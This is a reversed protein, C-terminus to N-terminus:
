IQNKVMVPFYRNYADPDNEGTEPDRKSIALRLKQSVVDFTLHAICYRDRPKRGTAPRNSTSRYESYIGFCSFVTSINTLTCKNIKTVSDKHTSAIKYSIQTKCRIKELISSCLTDLNKTIAFFEMSTTVAGDIVATKPDIKLKCLYMLQELDTKLGNSFLLSNNIAKKKAIVNFFEEEYLTQDSEHTFAKRFNLWMFHADLDNRPVKKNLELLYKESLKSKFEEPITWLQNSTLKLTRKLEHERSDSKLMRTSTEIVEKKVGIEERVIGGNRRLLMFLQRSYEESNELILKKHEYDVLMDIFLDDEHRLVMMQNSVLEKAIKQDLERITLRCYEKDMKQYFGTKPYVSQRGHMTTINEMKQKKLQPLTPINRNTGDLIIMRVTKEKINRIRNILQSLVQPSSSNPTVIVAMESYYEPNFSTGPGVATNFAFLDKSWFQDPNSSTLKVDRESDGTIIMKEGSPVHINDFITQLIAKCNSVLVMKKGNKINEEIKEIFVQAHSYMIYTRYDVQRPMEVIRLHGLIGIRDLYKVSVETPIGDMFITRKSCKILAMLTDWIEIQYSKGNSLAPSVVAELISEFEDLILVDYQPLLGNPAYIRSLSNICVVLKEVGFLSGQPCNLYNVIGPYLGGFTMSQAQRVCILLYRLGPKENISEELFARFATTKGASMPASIFGYKADEENGLAWEIDGKEIYKQTPPISVTDLPKSAVTGNNYLEETLDGLCTLPQFLKKLTFEKNQCKGKFCKFTAHCSYLYLYVKGSQSHKGSKIPCYYTNCLTYLNKAKRDPRKQLTVSNGIRGELSNFYDVVQKTMDRSSEELTKVKIETSINERTITASVSHGIEPVFVKANEWIKNELIFHWISDQEGRQHVVFPRIRTKPHPVSYPRIGKNIHYISKDLLAYIEGGFASKLYCDLWHLREKDKAFNGPPYVFLSADYIYVHLGKKGSFYVTFNSFQEDLLEITRKITPDSLLEQKTPSTFIRNFDIDMVGFYQFIIEEGTKTKFQFYWLSADEELKLVLPEIPGTVDVDVAKGGYINNTQYSPHLRITTQMTTAAVWIAM